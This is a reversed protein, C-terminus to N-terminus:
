LFLFIQSFVGIKISYITYQLAYISLCCYFLIFVFHILRRTTKCFNISCVCVYNRFTELKPTGNNKCKWLGSINLEVLPLALQKYLLLGINWCIKWLFLIRPLSPQKVRVRFPLAQPIM